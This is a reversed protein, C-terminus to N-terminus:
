GQAEEQFIYEQLKKVWPAPAILCMTRITM